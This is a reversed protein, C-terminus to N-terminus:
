SYNLYQKKLNEAATLTIRLAPKISLETHRKGPV